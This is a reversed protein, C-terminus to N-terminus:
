PQREDVPMDRWSKTEAPAAKSAKADLVYGSPLPPLNDASEDQEASDGDAPTLAVDTNETPALVEADRAADSADKAVQSDYFSEAVPVKSPAQPGAGANLVAAIVLLFLALALLLLIPLRARPEAPIRLRWPVARRYAWKPENHTLLPGSTGRPRDSPPAGSRANLIALLVAVLFPM